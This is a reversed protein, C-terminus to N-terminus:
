EKIVFRKGPLQEIYGNLELHLLINLLDQSRYGSMEIINDIYMPTKKLLKLIRQEESRLTQVSQQHRITENRKCASISFDQKKESECRKKRREIQLIIEELIDHVNEVLKAGEKLLKHTGRSGPSDISGPVAFIEKGQELGLRATILSGSKETAEVVVIGLSLGSIIRNRAPFHFGKPEEEFPFETIIAGQQAIENYLEINEPPYVVDIGSGLVATTRGSGSLAGRHAASDIGRAMGSVITIGEGALERSLRETLFTGYTSARRSGIVAINVDNVDLTGKVYLIPPFDYINLLSRPYREDKSTIIAVSYKEAKELERYVREWDHFKKIQRAARETVKPIKVLQEETARLVAQPSGFADVLNKFGVNGIEDVFKLALWYKIEKDTM